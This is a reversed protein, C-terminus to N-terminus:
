PNPPPTGGNNNGGQGGSLNSKANTAKKFAGMGASGAAFGSKGLASGADSVSGAVSSGIFTGTTMAVQAVSGIPDPKGDQYSPNSVGMWRMTQSPIQDIMKFSVLGLNYVIIAYVILYGIFQIPKIGSSSTSETIIQVTEGFITNLFVAGANFVVFSALLAFLIVVPKILIGFLINYGQMAAQGPMGEGDIRLHALAWLPVGILAEIVGMVWEVIAFFFYIFPMFPLVVGLLFGVGIGILGFLFIMNGVAPGLLISAIVGGGFATISRDILSNGLHVLGVMPFVNQNIPDAIEQLATIGFIDKLGKMLDSDDRWTTALYNRGPINISGVTPVRDVLYIDAANIAELVNVAREGLGTLGVGYMFYNDNEAKLHLGGMSENAVTTRLSQRTEVPQGITPANEKLISQVKQNAFALKSYFNAAVGWGGFTINDGLVEDLVRKSYEVGRESVMEDLLYQDATVIADFLIQAQPLPKEGVIGRRENEQAIMYMQAYETAAPRVASVIKGIATSYATLAKKALEKEADGVQLNYDLNIVGCSFNSQNFSFNPNTYSWEYSIYKKSPVDWAKPPTLNPITGSIASISDASEAQPVTAHVFMTESPSAVSMNYAAMCVENLFISKGIATMGAPYPPVVTKTPDKLATSFEIWANTALSSGAKAIYLTLYQASNLGSGLPVLLGLALVLRVPAWLSNFRKGFPQGTQASEGVITIVYYCVIIVAILMMATSYFGLMGHLATAISFGVQDVNNFIDQGGVEGVARQLFSLVVDKNPDPTTFMGSTSVSQAQASGLFAYFAILVAQVVIMILALVIAGFILVQDINRRSFVVNNAAVGLVDSVGFRGTNVPNLMPHGKPLLGVSSLILALMHAILGFHSSLRRVRPIIGPLFSYKLAGRFSFHVAKQAGDKLPRRMM